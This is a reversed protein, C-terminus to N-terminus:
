KYDAHGVCDIAGGEFIFCDVPKGKPSEIVAIGGVTTLRQFAGEGMDCGSLALMSVALTLLILIRM